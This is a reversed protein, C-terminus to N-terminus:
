GRDSRRSDRDGALPSAGQRGGAGDRDVEKGTVALYSVFALILVSLCLTTPGMGFGIGGLDHSRGLWDAISAGLPRTVVYAFWFAVVANFRLYRYGLAPVAILAAFALISVLYGWGLSTATMDGAATGLAFTAIVTAWYFLERRTTYISHISLTRETLYWAVFVIALASIFFVTSMVYPVGLVIHMVDAAMTGFVAVMTVAFWYAWTVYRRLGVQVVLAIVLGALGLIVALYKDIDYVLFDSAAEGTATTLLKVVWFFITIEPVKKVFRIASPNRTM